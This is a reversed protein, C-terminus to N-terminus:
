KTSKYKKKDSVYTKLYKMVVLTMMLNLVRCETFQNESFDIVEEHKQAISLNCIKHNKTWIIQIPPYLVPGCECVCVCVYIVYITKICDSSRLFPLKCFVLFVM